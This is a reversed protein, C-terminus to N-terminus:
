HGLKALISASCAVLKFFYKTSLTCCANHLLEAVQSALEDVADSFGHSPRRGWPSDGCDARTRAGSSHEFFAEPVPRTIRKM